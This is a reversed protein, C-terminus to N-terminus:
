VYSQNFAVYGVLDLASEMAGASGHMRAMAEQERLFAVYRETWGLELKTAAQLQSHGNQPSQQVDTLFNVYVLGMFASRNFRAM